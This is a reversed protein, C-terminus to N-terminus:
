KVSINTTNVYILYINYINHNLKQAQNLEIM